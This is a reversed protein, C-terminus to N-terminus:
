LHDTLDKHKAVFEFLTMDYYALLKILLKLQITNSKNNEIRNLYSSTVGIGNAVVKQKMRKEERLQKLIDGLDEIFKHENIM